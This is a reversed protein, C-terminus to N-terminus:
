RCITARYPTLGPVFRKVVGMTVGAEIKEGGGGGCGSSVVLVAVLGLVAALVRGNTKRTNRKQLVEVGRIVESFWNFPRGNSPTLHGLPKHM